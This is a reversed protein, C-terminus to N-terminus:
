VYYAFSWRAELLTLSLITIRTNQLHSTFNQRIGFKCIFNHYSIGAIGIHNCVLDEIFLFDLFDSRQKHRRLFHWIISVICNNRVEKYAANAPSVVNQLFAFGEAEPAPEMQYFLCCTFGKRGHFYIVDGPLHWGVLGTNFPCSM